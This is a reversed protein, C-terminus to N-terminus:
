SVERPSCVYCIDRQLEPHTLMKADMTQLADKYNEELESWNKQASEKQLLKTLTYHELLLCSM